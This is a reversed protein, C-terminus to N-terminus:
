NRSAAVCYNFYVRWHRDYTAWAWPVGDQEGLIRLGRRELSDRVAQRPDGPPAEGDRFYFPDSLLLTGGTRLLAAAEGLSAELDAIDILNSSLVADFLDPPFPLATCDGVVLEANAARPLSLPREIEQGRRVSLLYTREPEPLHLVARRALLVALFSLDVGFAAQFLPAVRALLGGGGCGTDLVLHRSSLERAWGALVEYPGQGSVQELWAAFPGYLAAPENSMIGAVNWPTEFQQTFRFDAGYDERGSGRRRRLWQDGEPSLEGHRDVDRRISDHYRRVYEEPDPYLVAVGSLVPYAAGCRACRLGGELIEDSDPQASRLPLGPLSGPALSGGCRSRHAAPANGPPVPAPCVLFAAASRKM